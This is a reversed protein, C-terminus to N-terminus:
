TKPDALEALDAAFMYLIKSNNKRCYFALHKDALVALDASDAAFM